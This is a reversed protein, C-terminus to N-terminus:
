FQTSGLLIPPTAVPIPTSRGSGEKWMEVVITYEPFTQEFGSIFGRRTKCVRIYRCSAVVADFYNYGEVDSLDQAMTLWDCGRGLRASVDDIFHHLAGRRFFEPM